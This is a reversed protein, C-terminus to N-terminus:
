SRRWRSATRTASTSISCHSARGRASSRACRRTSARRPTSTAPRRSRASNGGGGHRHHSQGRRDVATDSIRPRTSQQEEVRMAAGANAPMLEVFNPPIVFKAQVGLLDFRFRPRARSTLRCPANSSQHGSAAARRRSCRRVAARRGSSRWTRIRTWAGCWRSQGTSDALAGYKASNTMMEHVM